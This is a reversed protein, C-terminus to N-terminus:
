REAETTAPTDARRNGLQRRTVIAAITLLVAAPGAESPEDRMRILHTYLAGGMAIIVSSGGASGLRPRNRGALLELGASTELGGTFVRFWQPYGWQEFSHVQGEAGALKSGGSFLMVVGLLLQLGDTLRDCSSSRPETNETTDLQISQSM